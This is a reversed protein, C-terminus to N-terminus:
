DADALFGLAVLKTELENVRAQLNAIVSLVTNGEDETVFGYGTAAVLNQIAFDATGPATHTITTLEDTLETQQAVPTVGFFGLDGNAAINIRTTGDTQLEMARATGGDTGKETGVRFAPAGGTITTSAVTQSQSLTYTGTGGTGTGLATIRTGPLVNTGTIIQGIALTGSTVATVTLVTTAVSGTVVADSTSREWGSKGREFNTASTFTNYVRFTQANAANRQALTGAADRFWLVDVTGSPEATSSFGFFNNSNTRIGGSIGNCFLTRAVDLISANNSQGSGGYINLRAGPVATGITEQFTFASGVTIRDQAGTVINANVKFLSSGNVQLDLLNGAFGSAANVGFGTGSTSWSTSTTGTPEIVVQPKTTTSTGGTFWTGTFTGPPASAAGNLSSIFRGTLTVNTGDYTITSTGANAGSANYLLQGSSGAVLAVTGTADPFSITRNATPTVVQLTTEYTGGDDLNIDGGIGLVKGTDDWTLDASGGFAGDDNYQIETDSGGPTGGGAGTQDLGVKLLPNYTYPM